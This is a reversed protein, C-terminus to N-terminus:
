NMPILPSPGTSRSLSRGVQASVTANTTLPGKETTNRTINKLRIFIPLPCFKQSSLSILGEARRFPLKPNSPRQTSGNMIIFSRQGIHNAGITFNVAKMRLTSKSGSYSLCSEILSFSLILHSKFRKMTGPEVTVSKNM